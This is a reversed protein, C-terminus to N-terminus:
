EKSPKYAICFLSSGFPFDIRQLILNEIKLLEILFNNVFIPLAKLDSKSESAIKSNKKLKRYIMVLPFLFSNRYTIRQIKFGALELKRILEVKSYRIGTHIAKDHESRLFEYAPLNLILRGSAKLIRRYEQLAKVDDDVQAHYLIDISTIIDFQNDKFPLSSVSGQLIQDLGRKKCYTLAYESIDIGQTQGFTRLTKLFAGTGCGTDLIKLNGGHPYQRKLCLFILDRLGVYWWYSDEVEYMTKYESTEM